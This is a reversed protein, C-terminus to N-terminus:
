SSNTEAEIRERREIDAFAGRQILFLLLVLGPIAAFATLAFFVVWGTSAALFGSFASLVTRGVTALASLLAFQTATHAPSTCLASLYAVFIVTGIGSTFNEVVITFTLAAHNLGVWAQWSFVLNSFMQLLGAIILARSLPLARAMLGGALGGFITAFFGVGKLIAAVSTKDFGLKLAFPMTMMGALADCLKFLVVFLLILLAYPKILFDAFAEYATRAFRAVVGSGAEGGATAAHEKAHPETALLSAVLGVVMFGAIAAYGYSWSQGTPIGTGQFYDVLVLTGAGSLLLGVRYAAVYYTMGAAQQDIDLSEVRFADIVIDQTASATAVIVAALAVLFPAQLPNQAGLFVIAGMLVLQSFVLWGRRHGLVRGLIPVQFADVVPAWLFKISYPLGVLGFLGIAGLNVGSEEMWASLTSTTLALPLGASFGLLLIIFVRRDFFVSAARLAREAFGPRDESTGGTATM